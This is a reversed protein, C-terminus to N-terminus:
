LRSREIIIDVMEGVKKMSTVEKMTFRMAFRKEVAEILDIHALSDWGEIDNATTEDKVEISEDDFEDRFIENLELFIKERTM